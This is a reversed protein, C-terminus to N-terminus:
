TLNSRASIFKVSGASNAWFKTSTKALIPLKIMNNGKIPSFKTGTRARKTKATSSDITITGTILGMKGSTTAESGELTIPYM